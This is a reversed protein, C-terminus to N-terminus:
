TAGRKRVLEPPEPGPSCNNSVDEATWTDSDLTEITSVAAAPGSPGGNKLAGMMMLAPGPNGVAPTCGALM